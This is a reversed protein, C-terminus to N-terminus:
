TLAPHVYNFEGFEGAEVAFRQGEEHTLRTM